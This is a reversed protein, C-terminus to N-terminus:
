LTWGRCWGRWGARWTSMTRDRVSLTAWYGLMPLSALWPLPSHKRLFLVLGAGHQEMRFASRAPSTGGGRHWVRSTAAVAVRWGSAGMRLGLDVDEWLFFFREDFSGVERIAEARLLASAGTIYDVRDGTSAADRTRGTWRSVSGGGWTQVQNRREMSYIVSGVAGVGQDRDAEELMAALTTAEVIADNNLLWVFEAGEGLLCEIGVNNGAGFGLNRDNVIILAEPAAASIREISHDASGNDVVVVTVPTELTRLSALCDITDSAGRFNLVVVGVRPRGDPM